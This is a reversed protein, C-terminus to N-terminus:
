LCKLITILQPFILPKRLFSSCSAVMDCPIESNYRSKSDKFFTNLEKQLARVNSSSPDDKIRYMINNFESFDYKITKM